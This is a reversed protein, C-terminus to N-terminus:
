QQLYRFNGKSGVRSLVGKKFLVGLAQSVKRSTFDVGTRAKLESKVEGTTRANKFYTKPLLTGEIKRLVVSTEARGSHALNQRLNQKRKSPGSLVETRYKKLLAQHDKRFQRITELGKELNSGTPDTKFSLIINGIQVGVLIEEM